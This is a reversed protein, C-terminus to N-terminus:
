FFMLHDGNAVSYHKLTYRSSFINGDGCLIEAGSSKYRHESMDEVAGAILPILESVTLFDPVLVDYKESLAPVEINLLIEM